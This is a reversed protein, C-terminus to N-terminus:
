QNLSDLKLIAQDTYVNPSDILSELLKKASRVKKLSLYSQVLQWKSDYYVKSQPNNLITKFYRIATSADDMALYNLGMMYHASENDPSSILVEDLKVIANKYEGKPM